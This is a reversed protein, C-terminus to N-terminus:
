AQVDVTPFAPQPLIVLEIEEPPPDVRQSSSGDDTVMSRRGLRACRAGLRECCGVRKCTWIGFVIMLVLCALAFTYRRDFDWSIATPYEVPRLDTLQLDIEQEDAFMTFNSQEHTLNMELLPSMYSNYPLEFPISSDLTVNYVYNFQSNITWLQSKLDCPYNLSLRYVRAPVTEYVAPHGQCRLTVAVGRTILVHVNIDTQLLIDGKEQLTIIPANKFVVPFVPNFRSFHLYCSKDYAPESKLLGNICQHQDADHLAHSSCVIPSTGVCVPDFVVQNQVTEHLVSYPLTLHLYGSQLPIPWVAFQLYRYPTTEVIPLNVRFVLSREFHLPQVNLNEYYWQVPEVVTTLTPAATELVSQLVETPLLSETM